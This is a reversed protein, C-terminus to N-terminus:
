AVVRADIYALGYRCYLRYWLFCYVAVSVNHEARVPHRWLINHGCMEAFRRRAAGNKALAEVSSATRALLGGTNAEAHVVLRCLLCLCDCRCSGQAAVLLCVFLVLYLSLMLCFLYDFLVYM